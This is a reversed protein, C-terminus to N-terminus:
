LFDTVISVFIGKLIMSFFPKSIELSIFTFPSPNWFRLDLFMVKWFAERFDINFYM